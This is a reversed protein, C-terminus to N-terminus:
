DGRLLVLRRERVLVDTDYVEDLNVFVREPDKPKFRELVLAPDKAECMKRYIEPPQPWKDADGLEVDYSHLYMARFTETRDYYYTTGDRLEFFDYDEKAGREIRKLWHRFRM